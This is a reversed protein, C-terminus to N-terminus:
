SRSRKIQQAVLGAVLMGIVASLAIVVLLALGTTALLERYAMLGVAIPIFFFALHRVLLAAGTNVYDLRLVGYHLLLFLLLMGVANSPVPLQLVSVAIDALQSIGVLLLFQLGLRLAQGSHLVQASKQMSSVNM